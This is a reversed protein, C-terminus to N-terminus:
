PRAPLCRTAIWCSADNVKVRTASKLNFLATVRTGAKLRIGSPQNVESDGCICDSELVAEYRETNERAAPENAAESLYRLSRLLPPLNYIGGIIAVIVGISVVSAIVVQRVTEATAQQRVAARLEEEEVIRRREEDTLSM